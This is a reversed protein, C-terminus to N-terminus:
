EMLIWRLKWCTKSLAKLLRQMLGNKGLLDEMVKCKRVEDQYNVALENM